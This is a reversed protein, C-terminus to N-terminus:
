GFGSLKMWIYILYFLHYHAAKDSGKPLSASIGNGANIRIIEMYIKQIITILHTPIEKSSMITWLKDRDMSDFAKIFDIFAIYTPINFQTHKEIIQSVSFICDMYSRGKRFGTRGELLLAEAIVTLRKATIKSDIKYGTNLLSLGRYNNSNNIDGKKHIPIVVATRGKEPIDGYIWCVNLFNL